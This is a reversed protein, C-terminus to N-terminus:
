AMFFEVLVPALVKESVMHTQGQLTRYTARPLVKAVAKMANRMYEPSKGGDMALTPVRVESWTGVPLATGRQKDAVIAIDNPLTHAVAKLKKWPPTFQMIGIMIRPMGVLKMFMKLADSRRDETVATKLRSQFDSPMPPHTGDVILPAEYLALKTIGSIRNAAELALAAGSSLGFVYAAGGAQNVLAAIDEVEREMSWPLTNGSEGRGRRDYTFVTFTPALLPALKPSPGFARYCLAGDVLILAPGQGAKSYAIPTGDRSHVISMARGGDM